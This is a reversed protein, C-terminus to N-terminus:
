YPPIFRPGPNKNPNAEALSRRADAEGSSVTDEGVIGRWFPSKRLAAVAMPLFISESKGFPIPLANGSSLDSVVPPALMVPYGVFHQQNPAPFFRMRLRPPTLADPSWTDIAYAVPTGATAAVSTAIATEHRRFNFDETPNTGVLSKADPMPTIQHNDLMVPQHVEAVDIDVEISDNYVTASKSGSTGSYPYKLVASASNNRIQNDIDAGDIRITCGAFWAQWGTITAAKSGATVAITIQAPANLVHGREDKKVWAGGEGFLEQLAHNMAKAVAANRGLYPSADPISREEPAFYGLLIKAAENITM